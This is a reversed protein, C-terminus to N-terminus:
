HGPLLPSSSVLEAGPLHRRVTRLAEMLAVSADGAAQRFEIVVHDPGAPCDDILRAGAGELTKALAAREPADGPLRYTLQFRYTSFRDM